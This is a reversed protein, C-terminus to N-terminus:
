LYVGEQELRLKLRQRLAFLRKTIQAAGVGYRQALERPAYGYWYRLLFLRRETEPLARLWRNICASLEAAEAARAPDAGREPVCDELESLLVEMGAFRKAAHQHRWRDLSLNRVVRGLWSKLRLPREPPMANWAHLWTDNVCEEADQRQSLINMALTRCFGGYKGDTETIAQEDRAYYLDIIQTDEM